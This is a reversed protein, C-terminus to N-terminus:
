FENLKVSVNSLFSQVAYIDMFTPGNATYCVSLMTHDCNLAISYPEGPLNITRYPVTQSERKEVVDRLLLVSTFLIFLNVLSM